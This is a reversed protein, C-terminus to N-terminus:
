RQDERTLDAKKLLRKTTQIFREFKGKSQLFGSSSTTHDFEWNRAFSVFATSDFPRGNDSIVKDPVGQRAFISMMAAIVPGAKTSSLLIVDPFESNCYALILHRPGNLHYLDTVFRDCTACQSVNDKM